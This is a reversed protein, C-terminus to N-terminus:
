EKESLKKCVKCVYSGDKDAKGLDYNRCVDCQVKDDKSLVNLAISGGVFGGLGFMMVQPMNCALCSVTMLILLIMKM